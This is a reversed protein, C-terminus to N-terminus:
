QGNNAAQTDAPFLALVLPQPKIIAAKMGLINRLVDGVKGSPIFDAEHAARPKDPSVVEPAVAQGYQCVITSAPKASKVDFSATQAGAMAASTAVLLALKVIPRIRVRM